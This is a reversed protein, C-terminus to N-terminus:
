SGSQSKELMRNMKDKIEQIDTKDAFAENKTKRSTKYKDKFSYTVGINVGGSQVFYTM